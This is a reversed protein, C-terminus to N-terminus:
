GKKRSTPKGPKEVREIHGGQVLAAEQEVLLALDVGEGQEGAAFNNSLVKYPRAVIELHGGALEDAEETASLDAEFEDDGHLAKARASVPRYTNSM